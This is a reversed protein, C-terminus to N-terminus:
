HLPTLLVQQQKVAMFVSSLQHPRVINTEHNLSPPITRTTPPPFPWTTETVCQQRTQQSHEIGYYPVSLQRARRGNYLVSLCLVRYINVQFAPFNLAIFLILDFTDPYQNDRRYPPTHTADGWDAM